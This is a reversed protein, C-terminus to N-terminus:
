PRWRELVAIKVLEGESLSASEGRSNVVALLSLPWANGTRKSIADLTEGAKATAIRLTLAEAERELRARIM